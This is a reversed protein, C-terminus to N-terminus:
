LLSGWFTLESIYMYTVGGWTAMIKFRLYRVAPADLPFEFDEGDVCAYQLDETTPSDEGSPKKSEFSGLLTWSDWSGDPNPDNSGYVEIVKPDGAYYAGDTSGTSRHYFKFRSLRATVGLDFTFWQPIGTNPKTHFVSGGDWVDDWVVSVSSFGTHPEYTDTQLNAEKFKSKDLQQEFFPTIEEFLTDSYNNWRDRVFIGFKRPISDYGRVSFSGSDLKTYFIDSTVLDGLSDPTLVTIKVNGKSKNVFSVHVGGFTPEMSLSEFVSTVPPTLPNITVTVPESKKDGRSVAYLVVDHAETDPFGEVTVNNNYYSAKKQMPMTDRINYDALVYLLDKSDPLTYSITAGGPINEVKVNSVPTPATDDGSVPIERETKQCSFVLLMATAILYYKKMIM